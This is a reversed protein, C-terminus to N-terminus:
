CRFSEYTAQWGRSTSCQGTSDPSEDKIELPPIARVYKELVDVYELQGGGPRIIALSRKLINEFDKHSISHM